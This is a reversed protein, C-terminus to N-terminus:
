GMEKLLNSFYRIVPIIYPFDLRSPGIVGLDGKLNTGVEFDAFVLGCPELPKMGLEDGILVHIPEKGFAKAFLNKVQSVEEVLSLVTKTVDIDYFEPM